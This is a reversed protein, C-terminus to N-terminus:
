LLKKTGCRKKFGTLLRDDEAANINVQTFSNVGAHLSFFHNLGCAFLFWSGPRNSNRTENLSVQIKTGDAIAGWPISDIRDTTRETKVDAVSTVWSQNMVSAPRDLLELLRRLTQVQRSKDLLLYNLNLLSILQWYHKADTEQVLM